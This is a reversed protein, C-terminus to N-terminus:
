IRKFAVVAEAQERIVGPYGELFYDISHNHRLTDLLAQVPVRTGIFRVAGSLTDPTSMLVDQLETLINVELEVRM